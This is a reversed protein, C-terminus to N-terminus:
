NSNYYMISHLYDVSQKETLDTLVASYKFIILDYQHYHEKNKNQEKAVKLGDIKNEIAIINMMRIFQELSLNPQGKENVLNSFHESYKM